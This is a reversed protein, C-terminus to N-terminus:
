AAIGRRYRCEVVGAGLADNQEIAGDWLWGRREYFARARVNEKAVWLVLGGKERAGAWSTFAALLAGGVGRTWHAPHVNLVYLEYVGPEVPRTAPGGGAFAVVCGDEEAVVLLRDADVGAVAQSWAASQEARSLTDLYADPMIGRYGAQWAVVHIAGLAEADLLSAPRVEIM